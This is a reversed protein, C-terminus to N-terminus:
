AKGNSELTIDASQFITNDDVCCLCDNHWIHCREDCSMFPTQRVICLVVKSYIQWQSEKDILIM